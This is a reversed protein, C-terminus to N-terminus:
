NEPPHCRATTGAFIVQYPLVDGLENAALTVTVQIKDDGMGVVSVRKTGKRDRTKKARNVLLAATEDCGIVLQPPIKFRDLLDAGIQLYKKKKEEFDAPLERPKTTCVRSAIGHRKYFRRAWSPGFSHRKLMESKRHAHLLNILLNRLISDDVSLNANRRMDFQKLLELDIEKGYVPPRRYVPEHGTKLWQIWRVIRSYKANYTLNPDFENEYAEIAEKEGHELAYRAIVKWDGVQKTSPKARKHPTFM